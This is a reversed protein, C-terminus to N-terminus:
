VKRIAGYTYDKEEAEGANMSVTHDQRTRSIHAKVNGERYPIQITVMDDSSPCQKTVLFWTEKQNEFKSTTSMEVKELAEGSAVRTYAVMHPASYQKQMIRKSLHELLLGHLLQSSYLFNSIPQQQQQQVQNNAQYLISSSLHSGM